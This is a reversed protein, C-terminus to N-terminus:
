EMHTKVFFKLSGYWTGKPGSIKQKMNRNHGRGIVECLIGTITIKGNTTPVYSPTLRLERSFLEFKKEGYPLIWEKVMDIYLIPENPLKAIYEEVCDYYPRGEISYRRLIHGSKVPKAKVKAGITTRRKIAM